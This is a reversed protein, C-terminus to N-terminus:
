EAEPDGPCFEFNDDLPDFTGDAKILRCVVPLNRDPECGDQVVADDTEVVLCDPEQCSRWGFGFSSHYFKYTYEGFKLRIWDNHHHGGFDYVAEVSVPEGASFVWAGATEFECFGFTDCSIPTAQVYVFGQLDGYSVSCIYDVDSVQTTGGFDHKGPIRIDFGSAVVDIGVNADDPSIVGSDWVDPIGEPIGCGSVLLTLFVVSLVRMIEIVM